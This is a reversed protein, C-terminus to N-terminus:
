ILIKKKLFIKVEDDGESPKFIEDDDDNNSNNNNNNDDIFVEFLDTEPSFIDEDEDDYYRSM